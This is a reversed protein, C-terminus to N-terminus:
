PIMSDSTCLLFVGGHVSSHTDFIVDSTVEWEASFLWGRGFVMM